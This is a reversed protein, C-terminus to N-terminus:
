GVTSSPTLPTAKMSAATRDDVFPPMQILGSTTQLVQAVCAISRMFEEVKWDLVIMRNADLAVLMTAAITPGQLVSRAIRTAHM